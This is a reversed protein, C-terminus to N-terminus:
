EDAGTPQQGSMHGVVFMTSRGHYSSPKKGRPVLHRQAGALRPLASSITGPPSMWVTCPGTM